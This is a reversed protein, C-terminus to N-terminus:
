VPPPYPARRAATRAAAGGRRTTRARCGRASRIAGRGASAGGTWWGDGAAGSPRWGAAVAICGGPPLRGSPAPPAHRYAISTRLFARGSVMRARLEQSIACGGRFGDSFGACENASPRFGCSVDGVWPCSRRVAAPRAAADGNDGGDNQQEAVRRRGRLGRLAAPRDGRRVERGQADPVVRDIPLEPGAAQAAVIRPRAEVPGIGQALAEGLVVLADGDVAGIQDPLGLAAHGGGDEARQERADVDVRRGAEGRGLRPRDEVPHRLRGEPQDVRRAQPHEREALPTVRQSPPPRQRAEAVHEDVGAGASRQELRAPDATLGDAEARALEAVRALHRRHRHAPGEPRPVQEPGRLDRGEVEGVVLVPEQGREEGQEVARGPRELVEGGVGVVHPLVAGDDVDVRAHSPGVVVEGGLEAPAADVAAVARDGGEHVRQGRLPSQAAQLRTELGGVVRERVADLVHQEQDKM